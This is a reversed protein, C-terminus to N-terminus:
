RPRVGRAVVIKSDPHTISQEVHFSGQWSKRAADVESQASQGKPLLWITDKGALHHASVFLAPLAAVARASIVAARRPDIAEAKSLSVNACGLGLVDICHDLFEVRKRRPEVMQIPGDRLIAIVIGPLGAGTGIDVWLGDAPTDVVALLQASDVIHRTWIEAISAKSILNQQNSEAILLDVFIALRAECPAGFRGLLWDRAERETM